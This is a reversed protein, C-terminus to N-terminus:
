EVHQYIQSKEVDTIHLFTLNIWLRSIQSKEADTMYLFKFNRWMVSKKEVPVVNFVPLLLTNGITMSKMVEGKGDLNSLFVLNDKVRKMLEQM